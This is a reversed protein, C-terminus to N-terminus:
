QRENNKEKEPVPDFGGPHFPHCKLLRVLALWSGKLTGHASIAEAAYESCTPRFRCAPPVLPSIYRKYSKLLFVLFKKM